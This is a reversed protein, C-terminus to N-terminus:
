PIQEADLDGDSLRGIRVVADGAVTASHALNTFLTRGDDSSAYVIQTGNPGSVIDGPAFVQSVVEIEATLLGTFAITGTETALDITATGVETVGDAALFSLTCTGGSVDVIRVLVEAVTGVGLQAFQLLVGTVSGPV